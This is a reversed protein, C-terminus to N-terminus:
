RSLRKAGTLLPSCSLALVSDGEDMRGVTRSMGGPPEEPFGLAPIRESVFAFVSGLFVFLPKVRKPDGCAWSRLWVSGLPRCVGFEPENWM